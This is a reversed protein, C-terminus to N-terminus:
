AVKRRKEEFEIAAVVDERKLHPYEQLIQDATYGAEHFHWLAETRIRTGAVVWASSAVQRRKEIEGVRESRDKLHQAAKNMDEAILALSIELVDQGQGRAETPKGTEPDFFVVTRGALGFRLESWPSEYRAKLWAGVRRLEQLSMSHQNRLVAIARLGVLDRFTYVRGYARTPGLYTPSFFETQDWYTIQRKTLGTLRAVHDATFGLIEKLM